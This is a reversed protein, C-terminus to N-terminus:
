KKSHQAKSQDQEWMAKNPKQTQTQKLKTQRNCTPHKVSNKGVHQLWICWKYKWISKKKKLPSYVKVYGSNTQFKKRLFHWDTLCGSLKTSKKHLNQPLLALFKTSAGGVQNQKRSMAAPPFWRLWTSYVVKALKYNQKM